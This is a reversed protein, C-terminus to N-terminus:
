EKEFKCFLSEAELKTEDKTAKTATATTERFDDNNSSIKLQRNADDHHEEAELTLEASDVIMLGDDVPASQQWGDDEDDDGFGFATAYDPKVIVEGDVWGGDSEYDKEMM